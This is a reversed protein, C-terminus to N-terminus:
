PYRGLQPPVSCSQLRARRAVSPRLFTGAQKEIGYVSSHRFVSRNLLGVLCGEYTM